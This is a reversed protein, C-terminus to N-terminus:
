STPKAEHAHINNESITILDLTSVISGVLTRQVNADDDTAAHQQPIHLEKTEYRKTLCHSLPVFISKHLLYIQQDIM